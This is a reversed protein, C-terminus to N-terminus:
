KQPSGLGQVPASEQKLNPLVATARQIMAVGEYDDPIRAQFTDETIQPALNWDRFFATLVRNRTKYNVFLKTPLPDGSVPIWITWDVNPHHWELRASRVGNIDEEGQWGGTTQTSILSKHPDSVILDGIPLPIDYRESLVQVTEDITPPTPVIGFVKEGHFLVTVQKGDYVGEVDRDGTTRFWLRDPRRVTVHRELRATRKEGDRTVRESTEDVTFSLAKANAINTSAAKLLDEGRSRRASESNGCAGSTAAVTILLSISLRQPWNMM